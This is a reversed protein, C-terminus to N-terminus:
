LALSTLITIGERRRSVAGQSTRNTTRRGGNARRASLSLQRSADVTCAGVPTLSESGHQLVTAYAYRKGTALDWYVTGPYLALVGQSWSNCTLESLHLLPLTYDRSPHITSPCAWRALHVM